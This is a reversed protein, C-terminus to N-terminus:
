LSDIRYTYFYSPWNQSGHRCAWLYGDKYFLGGIPDEQLIYYGRSEFDEANLMYLKDSDRSSVWFKEGDWAIGSPDVVSGTISTDVSMDSRHRYFKGERSSCSWIHTGDYTLDNLLVYDISSYISEPTNYHAVTSLTTDPRLAMKYVSATGDDFAVSVWLYKTGGEETTTMGYPTSYKGKPPYSGPSDFYKVVELGHAEDLVYMRKRLGCNAWPVDEIWVLGNPEPGPGEIQDTFYLLKGLVFDFSDLDAYGMQFGTNQTEFGYKSIVIVHNKGGDVESISYRGLSDTVTEKDDVFLTVQPLPEKTVSNFVTGSVTYNPLIVEPVDHSQKKWCSLFFSSFLTCMM